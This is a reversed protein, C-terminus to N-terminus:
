GDATRLSARAGLVFGSWFGWRLAFRTCTRGWRMAIALALALGIAAGAVLEAM